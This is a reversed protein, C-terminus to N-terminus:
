RFQQEAIKTATSRARTVSSYQRVPRCPQQAAYERAPEDQRERNRRDRGGHDPLHQEVRLDPRDIRQMPEGIGQNASYGSSVIMMM